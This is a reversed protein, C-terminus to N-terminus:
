DVLVPTPQRGITVPRGQVLARFEGRGFNGKKRRDVNKTCTTLGQQNAKACVRGAWAERLIKM